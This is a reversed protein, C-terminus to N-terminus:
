GSSKSCPHITAPPQVACRGIGVCAYFPVALLGLISLNRGPTVLHQTWLGLLLLSPLCKIQGEQWSLPWLQTQTAELFVRKKRDLVVM